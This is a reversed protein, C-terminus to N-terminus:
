EVPLAEHTYDACDETLKSELKGCRNANVPYGLDIAGVKIVQRDLLLADHLRSAGLQLATCLSRSRRARLTSRTLAGVLEPEAVAM